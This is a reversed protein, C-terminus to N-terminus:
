CATTMAPSAADARHAQREDAPVRLLPGGAWRVPVVHERTATSSPTTRAAPDRGGRDSRARLLGGHHAGCGGNAHLSEAAFYSSAGLTILVGGANVFKDLEAVGPLGMGGTIDDSEGYTGLSPFEPDKKYAFTKGPKPDIDFILGKAGGGRGGQSPIVIVDYAARLNGQRIREKYILDYNIEFKDFAYRM